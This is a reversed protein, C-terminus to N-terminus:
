YKELSGLWVSSKTIKKSKSPNSASTNVYTATMHLTHLVRQEIFQEAVEVSAATVNVVMVVGPSYFVKPELVWKSPDLRPIDVEVSITEGCGVQNYLEPSERLPLTELLAHTATRAADFADLVIAIRICRGSIGLAKYNRPVLLPPYRFQLQGFAHTGVYYIPIIKSCYQFNSAIQNSEPVFPRAGTSLTSVASLASLTSERRQPIVLAAGEPSAAGSALAPLSVISSRQSNTELGEARSSPSVAKEDNASEHNQLSKEEEKMVDERAKQTVDVFHHTLLVIPLSVFIVGAYMTVAAVCKGFASIPVVDGYGITTMTVICWWCSHIISQYPSVTGDDRIWILDEVNFKQTDQEAIFMISSFVINALLFLFLILKLSKYANGFTLAAVRLSESYKVFRFVRVIRLLRLIDFVNTSANNALALEVYFPIVSLMDIWTLIQSFFKKKNECTVARLSFEITFFVSVVIELAKIVPDEALIYDPLSEVCMTVLALFVVCLVVVSM